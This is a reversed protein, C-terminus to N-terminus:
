WCCCHDCQWIMVSQSIVGTVQSTLNILLCSRIWSSGTFRYCSYATISLPVSM